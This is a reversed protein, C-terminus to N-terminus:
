PAVRPPGEDVGRAVLRRADGLGSPQQEVSMVTAAAGDPAVTMVVHGYFDSVWWRGERWRPGEFFAGGEFLTTLERALV